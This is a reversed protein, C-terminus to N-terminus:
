KINLKIKKAISDLIKKTPKNEYGKPFTFGFGDNKFRPIIHLHVHFVEQGAAEGDALFFNIGECKINSRRISANIKEGIIILKSLDKLKMQSVLESHRKPIILIHGQNVPKIDMFALVKQDEYVKSCPINGKIIQCFICAPLKKKPMNEKSEQSYIFTGEQTQKKNM